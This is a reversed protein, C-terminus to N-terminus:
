WLTAIWWHSRITWRMSPLIRQLWYSPCLDSLRLEESCTINHEGQFRQIMVRRTIVEIFRTFCLSRLTEGKSEKKQNSMYNNFFRSKFSPSKEPSATPSPPPSPSHSKKGQQGNGWLGIGATLKTTVAKVCRSRTSINRGKKNFLEISEVSWVCNKISMDEMQWLKEVHWEKERKIRVRKNRRMFYGSGILRHVNRRKVFM